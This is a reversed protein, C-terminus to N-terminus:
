TILVQLYYFDYDQKKYELCWKELFEKQDSTMHKKIVSEPLPIDIEWEVAEIKARYNVPITGLEHFDVGYVLYSDRVINYVDNSLSKGYTCPIEIPINDCDNKSISVVFVHVGFYEQEIKISKKIDKIDKASQALYKSICDEDSSQANFGFLNYEM